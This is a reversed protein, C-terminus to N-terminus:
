KRESDQLINKKRINMDLESILGSFERSFYGICNQLSQFPVWAYPSYKFHKYISIFLGVQLHDPLNNM